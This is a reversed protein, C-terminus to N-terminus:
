PFMLHEKLAHTDANTSISSVFHHWSGPWHAVIDFTHFETERNLPDLQPTLFVGKRGKTIISKVGESYILVENQLYFPATM